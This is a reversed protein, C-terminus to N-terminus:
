TESRIAVSHAVPDQRVPNRNYAESGGIPISLCEWSEGRISKALYVLQGVHYAVRALSRHLAEHVEFSQGRIFVTEQLQEDRLVDLAAFLATWGASWKEIVEHRTV